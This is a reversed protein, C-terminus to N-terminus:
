TFYGYGAATKAGVGYMALSEGLLAVIYDGVAKTTLVDRVSARGPLPALQDATPWGALRAMNLRYYCMFRIGPMTTLFTIPTPNQDDTPYKKGDRLFDPYHPNMIDIGLIEKSEKLSVPDPVADFFSVIGGTHHNVVLELHSRVIKWGDSLFPINNLYGYWDCLLCFASPYDARGHSESDNDQLHSKVFVSGFVARIKEAEALADLLGAPPEEPLSKSPVPVSLKSEALHHVVGKLSSAPILPFGYLHHLALGTEMAPNNSLGCVMRGAATYATGTAGLSEMAASYSAFWAPYKKAVTSNMSQCFSHFFKNQANKTEFKVEGSKPDRDDYEHFKQLRLT